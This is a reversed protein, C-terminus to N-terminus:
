RSARSAQPPVCFALGELFWGKGRMEDIVAQSTTYRHNPDGQAGSKGNFLRYVPTLNAPCAGNTPTTVALALGELHWAPQGRPASHELSMLFDCEPGQPTYFHSNPGIVPDGYFRCVAAAGSGAPVSPTWAGLTYGTRVWGMSAVNEDLLGSEFGDLTMFYHDLQANHYEVLTAEVRPTDTSQRIATCSSDPLAGSPTAHVMSGDDRQLVKVMTPAIRLGQPFGPDATGDPLFRIARVANEVSERFRLAQSSALVTWAGLSTQWLAVPSLQPFVSTDGPVPISGGFGADLNGGADFRTLAVKWPSSFSEFVASAFVVRGFADAKVSPSVWTALGVHPLLRKPAGPAFDVPYRHFQPSVQVVGSLDQPLFGAEVSGDEMVSWAYVQQTSPINTTVVGNSGFARDVQGDRTLRLFAANGNNFLLVLKGDAQEAVMTAFPLNPAVGHDGFTSDLKGARDFRAFNGNGVLLKGDSLPVINAVGVQLRLIGGNAWSTDLTGDRRLKALANYTDSASTGNHLMGMFVGQDPAGAIFGSVCAYGDLVPPQFPQAAGFPQALAECSVFSILACLASRFKM